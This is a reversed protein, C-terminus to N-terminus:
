KVHIFRNNHCDHKKVVTVKWLKAQHRVCADCPVRECLRNVFHLMQEPFWHEWVLQKGGMPWLEAGGRM